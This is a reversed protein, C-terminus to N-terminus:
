LVSLAADILDIKRRVTAMVELELQKDNRFCFRDMALVGL